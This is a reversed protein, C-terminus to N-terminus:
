ALHGLGIGLTAALRFEFPCCGSFALGAELSEGVRIVKASVWGTPAPEELRIWVQHGAPPSSEAALRVGGQSFDLLRFGTERPRSGESWELTGTKGNAEQRATRRRDPATM